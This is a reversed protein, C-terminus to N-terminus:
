RLPMYEGYIAGLIQSIAPPLHSGVPTFLILAHVLLILVLCISSLNRVRMLLQLQNYKKDLIKKSVASTAYTNDIKIAGSELWLYLTTAASILNFYQWPKNWPFDLLFFYEIPSVVKTRFLEPIHVLNFATMTVAFAICTAMALTRRLREWPSRQIRQLLHEVSFFQRGDTVIYLVPLYLWCTSKISLRYVYGPLLFFIIFTLRHSFRTYPNPHNGIRELLGNISFMSATDRFNPMLEPFQFVDLVFLTNRFNTPFDVIGARFNIATAILRIALTRLWVGILSPLGFAASIANESFMRATIAELGMLGLASLLLFIGLGEKNPWAGWVLGLIAGGLAFLRNTVLEHSPPRFIAASMGLGFAIVVYGAYGLFLYFLIAAPGVPTSPLALLPTRLLWHTGWATVLLSCLGSILAQLVKRTRTISQPRPLELYAYFWAVGLAISKDSRLLLLPAACVSIWLHTFTNLSLAITWYIAVAIAVEFIALLSPLGNQVSADTSRWVVVSELPQHDTINREKLVWIPHRPISRTLTLARV